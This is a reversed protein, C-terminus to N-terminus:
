KERSLAIGKFWRSDAVRPAAASQDQLTRAWAARKRNGTVACITMGGVALGSESAPTEHVPVLFLELRDEGFQVDGDVAKSRFFGGLSERFVTAVFQYLLALPRQQRHNDILEPIEHDQDQDGGGDDRAEHALQGVGDGDEDDDDQVGDDADDLLVAGLLGHLGQLLHGGGDGPNKAVAADRGNRARLDDRPVQHKELCPADDRGIHPEGLRGHQFDLLRGERALRNGHFLM